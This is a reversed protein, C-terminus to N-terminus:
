FPHNGAPASSSCFGNESGASRVTIRRTRSAPPCYGNLNADHDDVVIVEAGVTEPNVAGPLFQVSPPGHPPM